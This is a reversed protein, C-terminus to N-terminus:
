QQRKPVIKLLLYNEEKIKKKKVKKKGLIEPVLVHKSTLVIGRDCPAESPGAPHHAARGELVKELNVCVTCM